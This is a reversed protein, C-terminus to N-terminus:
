DTLIRRVSGEVDGENSMAYPYAMLRVIGLQM